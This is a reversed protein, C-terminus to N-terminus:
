SRRAVDVARKFDCRKRESEVCTDSLSISVRANTCAFIRSFTAACCDDSSSLELSKQFGLDLALLSDDAFRFEFCFPILSTGAAFDLFLNDCGSITDAATSSFVDISSVLGLTGFPGGGFVGFKSHSHSNQVNVFSGSVFIHAMQQLVGVCTGSLFFVAVSVTCLNVLLSVLDDVVEVSAAAVASGILPLAFFIEFFIVKQGPVFDLYISLFKRM